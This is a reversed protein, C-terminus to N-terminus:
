AGVHVGGHVGHEVARAEDAAGLDRGELGLDRGVRLALCPTPQAEPVSASSSASLASPTPGPSSTTVEAYENKAEAEVMASAPAVGTNQSM